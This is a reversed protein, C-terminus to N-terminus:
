PHRTSRVAHPAMGTTYVVPASRREQGPGSRRWVTVAAAVLAVVLAGATLWFTPGGPGALVWLDDPGHELLRLGLVLPYAQRLSYVEGHAFVMWKPHLAVGVLQLAAGPLATLVLLRRPWSGTMLARGLLALWPAILPVL